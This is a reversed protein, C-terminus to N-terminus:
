PRREQAFVHFFPGVALLLARIPALRRLRNYARVLRLERGSYMEQPAAPIEPAVIKVDFGHRRLVRRLGPSSLLSVHDCPGGRASGRAPVGAGARPCSARWAGAREDRCSRPWGPPGADSRSSATM